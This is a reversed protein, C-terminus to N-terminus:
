STFWPPPRFPMPRASRSRASACMVPIARRARATAGIMVSCAFADFGRLQRGVLRQARLAGLHLAPVEREDRREHHRAVALVRVWRAAAPLPWAGRARETASGIGVM